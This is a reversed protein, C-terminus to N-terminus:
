FERMTSADVQQIIKMVQNPSNWKSFAHTAVGDKDIMSIIAQKFRVNLYFSYPKSVRLDYNTYAIHM